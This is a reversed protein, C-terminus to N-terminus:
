HLYEQNKAHIKAKFVVFVRLSLSLGHHWPLWVKGRKKLLVLLSYDGFKNVSVRERPTLTTSFHLPSHFHPQRCADRARVLSHRKLMGWPSSCLAIPKFFCVMIANRQRRETPRSRGSVEEGKVFSTFVLFSNKKENRLKCVTMQFGVGSFVASMRGVNSLEFSNSFSPLFKFCRSKM